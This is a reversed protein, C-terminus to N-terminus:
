KGGAASKLIQRLDEYSWNGEFMPVFANGKQFNKLIVQRKGLSFQNKGNVFIMVPSHEKINYKAIHKRSEPSEFSYKKVAVGKFEKIVSEVDRVVAEAPPHPLYFIEVTVSYANSMAAFLFAAVALFSYIMSKIKM